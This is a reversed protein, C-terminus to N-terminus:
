QAVQGLQVSVPNECLLGSCGLDSGEPKRNGAPCDSVQEYREPGETEAKLTQAAGLLCSTTTSLSTWTHTPRVSGRALCPKRPRPYAHSPVQPHPPKHAATDLSLTPGSHSMGLLEQQQPWM